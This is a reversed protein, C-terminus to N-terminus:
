GPFLDELSVIAILRDEHHVMGRIQGVASSVAGATPVPMLTDAGVQIIDSVSDVLIGITRSDLALVLVVNGRAAELPPGGLVQSLDFVEVVQGRIDLVGRAGAGRGPLPTTPQWSRIERVAMIDVGYHGGNSTFTVYQLPARVPEGQAGTGTRGPGGSPIQSTQM